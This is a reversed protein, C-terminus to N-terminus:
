HCFWVWVCVYLVCVSVSGVSCSDKTESSKKRTSTNTTITDLWSVDYLLLTQQVLLILVWHSFILMVMFFLGFVKYGDGTVKIIILSCNVFVVTKM